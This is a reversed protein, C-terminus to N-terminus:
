VDFLVIEILSYNYIENPVFPAVHCKKIGFFQSPGKFSHYHKQRNKLNSGFSGKASFIM